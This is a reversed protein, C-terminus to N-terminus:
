KYTKLKGMTESNRENDVESRLTKPVYLPLDDKEVEQIQNYQKQVSCVLGSPQYMDFTMRGLTYLSDGLANHGLSSNSYEPPSMTLWTGDINTSEFCSSLKQKKDNSSKKMRSYTELSALSTKFSSSSTGGKELTSLLEDKTAQIKADLYSDDLALTVDDDRDRKKRRGSRCSSSKPQSTSHSDDCSLSCGDAESESSVQAATSVVADSTSEPAPSQDATLWAPLQLTSSVNQFTPYPPRTAISDPQVLYPRPTFSSLSGFNTGLDDDHAVIPKNFDDEIDSEDDEQDNNAIDHDSNEDQIDDDDNIHTDQLRECSTSVENSVNHPQLSPHAPDNGKLWWRSQESRATEEAKAIIAGNNSILSAESYFVASKYAEQRKDINDHHTTISAM